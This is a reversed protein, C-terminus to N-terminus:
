ARVKEITHYLFVPLGLFSPARDDRRLELGAATYYRALRPRSQYVTDGLFGPLRGGLLTNTWTNVLSRLGYFRRKWTPGWLLYRVYYGAGHSSLRGVAGPKLIRAIEEVVTAERTYPLVVKCIVGDAVSSRIPLEEAYGRLVALGDRRCRGLSAPDPDVGVGLCARAALGRLQGGEGCGVDVVLAGPGFRAFDFEHLVYPDWSLDRVPRERRSPEEVSAVPARQERM